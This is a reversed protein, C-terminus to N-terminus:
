VMVGYILSFGMSIFIFSVGMPVLPNDFPSDGFFSKYYLTGGFLILSIGIGFGVASLASVIMILTDYFEECAITM